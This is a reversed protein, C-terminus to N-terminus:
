FMKNETVRKRFHLRKHFLTFFINYVCIPWLHCHIHRLRKAHRMGLVVFVCESYTIGNAIGCCCQNHSRAEINRQVLMTKDYLVYEVSEWPVQQFVDRSLMWNSLDVKV